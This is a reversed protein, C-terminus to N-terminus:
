ETDETGPREVRGAGPNSTLSEALFGFIDAMAPDSRAFLKVAANVDLVARWAKEEALLRRDSLPRLLRELKERMAAEKQVAKEADRLLRRLKAVSLEPVKLSKTNEWTLAIREILEDYGERAKLIKRRQEASLSIPPKSMQTNSKKLAVASKKSAAVKKAVSKNATSIKAKSM